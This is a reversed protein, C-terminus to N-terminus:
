GKHKFYQIRKEEKQVSEPSPRKTGFYKLVRRKGEKTKSRSVLAWKKTGSKPDVRQTLISDVETGDENLEINVEFNPERENWMNATENYDTSRLIPVGINTIWFEENEDDFWLEFDEGKLLEEKSTLTDWQKLDEDPLMSLVLFSQGVKMRKLNM